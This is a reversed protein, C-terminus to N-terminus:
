SMYKFTIKYNELLDTNKNDLIDKIIQKNDNTKTFEETINNIEITKTIDNKDIITINYYKPTFGNTSINNIISNIENVITEEKFNDLVLEKKIYYYKLDKTDDNIIKDKVLSNYKDLSNTPIVECDINTTEKIKNKIETTNTKLLQQGEVYDKKYTDNIKRNSYTLYFCHNNNKKNSMKVKFINNKFTIKSKNLELGAYNNKIYTDFKKDIKTSFLEEKKENIIILSFSVIVVLFFIARGYILSKKNM